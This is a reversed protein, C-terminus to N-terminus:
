HAFPGAVATAPPARIPRTLIAAALPEPSRDPLVLTSVVVEVREAEAPLPALDASTCTRCGGPAHHSDHHHHHSDEGCDEDGCEIAPGAFAICDHCGPEAAHEEAHLALGAQPLLYLLALLFSPWRPM